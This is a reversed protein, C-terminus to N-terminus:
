AYSRRLVLLEKIKGTLNIIDSRHIKRCWEPDWFDLMYNPGNRKLSELRAWLLEIHMENLAPFEDKEKSMKMEVITNRSMKQPCPTQTDAAPVSRDKAWKTLILPM